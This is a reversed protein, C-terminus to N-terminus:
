NGIDKYNFWVKVFILIFNITDLECNNFCSCTKPPTILLLLVRGMNSLKKNSTESFWNFTEADSKSVVILATTVISDSEDPEIAIDALNSKSVKFVNGSWGKVKLVSPSLMMSILESWPLYSMAYKPPSSNGFDTLRGEGLLVIIGDLIKAVAIDFVIKAAPLSSKLGTILPTKKWNLECFKVKTAVSAWLNTFYVLVSTVASLVASNIMGFFGNFRNFPTSLPSSSTVM